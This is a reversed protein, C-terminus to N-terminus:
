SRRRMSVPKQLIENIVIADRLGRSGRLRAMLASRRGGRQRSGRRSSRPPPDPEFALREDRGTGQGSGEEASEDDAWTAGSRAEQRQREREQFFHEGALEAERERALAENRLAELAQRLREFM